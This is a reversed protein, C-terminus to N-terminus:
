HMGTVLVGEIDATKSPGTILNINAPLDAQASLQAFFDFLDGCVQSRSVLAIHVPPVLSTGRGTAAGSVCVITGTEAIAAQVGTVALDAAFLTEDDRQATPRVGDAALARALEDARAVTLASDPQPEILVTKAGLQHAIQRIVSVYESEDSRHVTCGASQ